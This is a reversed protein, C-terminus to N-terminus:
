SSGIGCTLLLFQPTFFHLLEVLFCICYMRVALVLPPPVPRAPSAIAPGINIQSDVIVSLFTQSVVHQAAALLDQAKMIQLQPTHNM